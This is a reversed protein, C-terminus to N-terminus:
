YKYELEYYYHVKEEQAPIIEKYEVLEYDNEYVYLLDKFEEIIKERLEDSIYDSYHYLQSLHHVVDYLECGEKEAYWRVRDVLSAYKRM